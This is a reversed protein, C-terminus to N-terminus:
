ACGLRALRPWRAYCCGTCFKMPSPRKDLGFMVGTMLGTCLVCVGATALVQRFPKAARALWVGIACFALLLGWLQNVRVFGFRLFDDARLSEWFVQTLGLLMAGSLAVDGVRIKPRAILVIALILATLGEWFFVPLVYEGYTNQVALPFWCLAENDMYAGVGNLTAAEAFRLGALTVLAAPVAVDMLAAFPHKALKAVIWM